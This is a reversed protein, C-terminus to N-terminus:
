QISLKVVSSRGKDFSLKVVYIGKALNGTELRMEKETKNGERHIELQGEMNYVEVAQISESTSINFFNNNTPNPYVLVSVTNDIENIGTACNCTHSGLGSWTGEPLSDWQNYVVFETSPNVTIGQTVDAHRRLTHNETWITGASGDFPFMDSWGYGTVMAADGTKGFIDIITAGNYLVIADNGNMYMPAPYPGDLQNAMAQLVPSCAPSPPSVVAVTQGNVIVFTSHAAITGVLNLLGGATASATSAGNSFRLISYGSLNIPSNTPNFIELAKDNGAGEVYESIFLENCQANVNIFTAFAFVSLLLKKM